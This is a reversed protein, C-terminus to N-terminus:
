EETELQLNFMSIIRVDEMPLTFEWACAETLPLIDKKGIPAGAMYRCSIANEKNFYSLAKMINALIKPSPLQWGAEAIAFKVYKWKEHLINRFNGACHEATSTKCSFGASCTFKGGDSDFDILGPRSGILKVLAQADEHRLSFPTFADSQILTCVKEIYSQGNCGLVLLRGDDFVFQVGDCSSNEPNSFCLAAKIATTFDRTNIVIM